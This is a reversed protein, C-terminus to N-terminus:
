LGEYIIYTYIPTTYHSIYIYINHTHKNKRTIFIITQMAIDFFVMKSNANQSIDRVAKGIMESLEIVNREHIFPAFKQAFQEEEATMYNLEPEHFNYVFSERVMRHMYNLFRKQKERGFAAISESWKKLEKVRKTYALRMLMTFLDFFMRNENGTSLAALANTWSGNALRALSRADAHELGRKEVLAEEIDADAIRKFDFRQTRSRITDLLKEPEESVLIFVTQSPPEELLKLLKNASTQNMREPLWVICVKYGGQSSKLSLKRSLADSEAGTIVAQQNEADMQAMWQELTFYPGQMIMERWQGAFDDSTPQHESGMSPKKITPYSFVLDPHTWQKLLRSHGLLESAFAMALAMKGCGTPGCFLMAHPVRGEDILQRLQRKAENQGIVEDFQM